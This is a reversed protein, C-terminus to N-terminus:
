EWYGNGIVLRLYRRGASGDWEVLYLGAPVGGLPLDFAAQGAPGSTRLWCSGTTTLLRVQATAGAALPGSLHVLGAAPNPYAALEAATATVAVVASYDLRGDLDLQRLRYYRTGALPRADLNAYQRPTSINGAAAM